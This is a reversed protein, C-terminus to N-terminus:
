AYDPEVSNFYASTSPRVTHRPDKGRVLSALDTAVSEVAQSDVHLFGGLLIGMVTPRDQQELVM